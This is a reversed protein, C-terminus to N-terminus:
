PEFGSRFLASARFVRVTNDWPNLEEGPRSDARIVLEWQARVADFEPVRVRFFHLAGPEFAFYPGPGTPCPQGASVVCEMPLDEVDGEIRASLRVDEALSPGLNAIAFEVEPGSAGQLISQHVVQVQLAVKRAIWCADVAFNNEPVPDFRNSTALVGIACAGEAHPPVVVLIDPRISYGVDLIVSPIECHWRSDPRLECWSHQVALGGDVYLVFRFDDVEAPGHNTVQAAIFADRGAIFLGPTDLAVQLDAYYGEFKLRV